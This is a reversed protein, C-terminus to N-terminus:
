EKRAKHKKACAACVLRAEAETRELSSELGLRWAQNMDAALDDADDKDGFSRGVAVGDPGVVTYTKGAGCHKCGGHDVEVTYVKEM